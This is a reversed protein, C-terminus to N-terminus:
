IIHRVRRGVENNHLNVLSRLDKKKQDPQEPADVFQRGFKEGYHIDDSFCGIIFM